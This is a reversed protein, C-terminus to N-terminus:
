YPSEWNWLIKYIIVSIICPTIWHCCWCWNKKQPPPCPCSFIPPPCFFFIYTSSMKVMDVLCSLKWNKKKKESGYRHDRLETHIQFLIQPHPRPPETIYKWEPAWIRRMLRKSYQYTHHCKLLALLNNFIYKQLSMEGESFPRGPAGFHSFGLLKAGKVGM